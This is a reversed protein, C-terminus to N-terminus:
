SIIDEVGEFEAVDESAEFNRIENILHKGLFEEEQFTDMDEENDFQYVIQKKKDDRTMTVRKMEKLKM